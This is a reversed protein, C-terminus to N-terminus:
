LCCALANGDLTCCDQDGDTIDYVAPLLRAMKHGATQIVMLSTMFVAPLLAAMKHTATQIVMLSTMFVAPLLAAMKHAATQILSTM